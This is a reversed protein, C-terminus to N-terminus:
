YSTVLIFSWNTTRGLVFFQSTNWCRQSVAGYTTIAMPMTPIIVYHRLNSFPRVSRTCTPLVGIRGSLLHPFLAPHPQHHLVPAEKPHDSQVPDGSVGPRGPFVTQQDDEQSSSPRYGVRWERFLSFTILQLPITHKSHRLLVSHPQGTGTFAEPDIDVWQIAQGNENLALILDVEKASYTQSRHIHCHPFFLM